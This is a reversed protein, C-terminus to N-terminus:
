SEQFFSNPPSPIHLPRWPFPGELGIKKLVLAFVFAMQHWDHVLVQSLIGNTHKLSMWTVVGGPDGDLRIEVCMHNEKVVDGSPLSLCWM